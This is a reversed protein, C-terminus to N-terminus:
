LVQVSFATTQPPISATQFNAHEVRVNQGPRLNRLYIQNGRRDLIMTTDTVVFRMQSNPDNENGVLFFSNNVDVRIVNGIKVNTLDQASTVTIRFAVAQPPMSRTMASSFEANVVMGKRLDRLLMNQGFRNRIITNQNVLLAVVNIHIMRFDGMVGYSITVTGARNNVFVDEVIADRVRVISNSGSNQNCQNCNKFTDM